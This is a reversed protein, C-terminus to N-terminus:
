GCSQPRLYFCICPFNEYIYMKVLPHHYPQKFYQFFVLDSIPLIHWCYYQTRHRIVTGNLLSELEAPSSFVKKDSGSNSNTLFPIARVASDLFAHGARLIHVNSPFHKVIDLIRFAHNVLAEGNSTSALAHVAGALVYLMCQWLCMYVGAVVLLWSSLM